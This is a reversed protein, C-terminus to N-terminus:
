ILAVAITLFFVKSCRIISLKDYRNKAREVYDRVPFIGAVIFPLAIVWWRMAYTLMRQQWITITRDSKLTIVAVFAFSLFILTQTSKDGLDKIRTLLDKESDDYTEHKIQGMM